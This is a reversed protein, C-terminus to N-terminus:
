SERMANKLVEFLEPSVTKLDKLVEGLEKPKAEKKQKRATRIIAEEESVYGEPAFLVDEGAEYKKDKPKYIKNYQKAVSQM